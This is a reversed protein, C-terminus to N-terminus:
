HLKILDGCKIRLHEKFCSDRFNQFLRVFLMYRLAYKHFICHPLSSKRSFNLKLNKSPWLCSRKLLTVTHLTCEEFKGLTYKKSESDKSPFNKDKRRKRVCAGKKWSRCAAQRYITMLTKNNEAFPTSM